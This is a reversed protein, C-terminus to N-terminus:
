DWLQSVAVDPSYRQMVQAQLLEATALADILAHHAQYPPLNYRARSDALRISTLPRRLLRDWWRRPQRHLRAELQMTDIVPFQVGEGFHRLLAQNLFGREINRYHVVMVKEEMAKLLDALVESVAPAHRIDSHTIHHFTVSKENLETSPNIVWYQAEGCRIRSLNFPLLGISVIDHQQADLGTTEVDMALMKVQELPTEQSVAGAQYFAILLPHQAEQALMKFQESWNLGSPVLPTNM